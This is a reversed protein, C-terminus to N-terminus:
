LAPSPEIVQSLNSSEKIISLVMGDDIGALRETNETDRESSSTSPTLDDSNRPVSNQIFMEDGENRVEWEQGYPRHTSPDVIIEVRLVGDKPWDNQIGDLCNIPSRIFAVHLYALIFLSAFAAALVSFEIMRQIKKPVALAYLLAIKMFIVRFLRSR